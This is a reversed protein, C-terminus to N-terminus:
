YGTTAIGSAATGTGTAGPIIGISFYSDGDHVFIVGGDCKNAVPQNISKQLDENGDYFKICTTGSENKWFAHYLRNEVCSSLFIHTVGNILLVQPCPTSSNYTTEIGSPSTKWGASSFQFYRSEIAYNDNDNLTIEDGIGASDTQIQGILANSGSEKKNSILRQGENDIIRTSSLTGTAVDAPITISNKNIQMRTGSSTEFEIKGSGVSLSNITVSGANLSSQPMTIGNKSILIDSNTSTNTSDLNGMYLYASDGMHLKIKDSYISSITSVNNVEEKQIITGLLKLHGTNCNFTLDEKYFLNNTKGEEPTILSLNYETTDTECNGVDLNGLGPLDWYLGKQSDFLITQGDTDPPNYQHKNEHDQIRVNSIDLNMVELHLASGSIDNTFYPASVNQGKTSRNIGGQKKWSM